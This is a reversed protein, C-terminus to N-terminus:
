DTTRLRCNSYGYRYLLRNNSGSSNLVEGKTSDAEIKTWVEFPTTGYIGMGLVRAAVGAVMPSAFSTGSTGITRYPNDADIHAVKLNDSPAFIDVAPGYNSGPDTNGLKYTSENCPEWVPDASLWRSDDISTGGVSIVRNPGIASDPNGWALRAPTTNRADINQNNASVVVTVGSAVLSTVADELISLEQSTINQYPDGYPCDDPNAPDLVRFMSINAVRSVSTDDKQQQEIWTLGAVIDDVKSGGTCPAVKVPVLTVTKAVGTYIGGLASAVATGHGGQYTANSNEDMVGCPNTGYDAEDGPAPTRDIPKGDQDTTTAIGNEVRTTHDTESRWFEQHSKLIGTDLVYAKVGFGSDCYLFQQDLDSPSAISQQDVRDLHWLVNESVTEGTSPDFNTSQATSLYMYGNEEVRAVLPYKALREAAAEPMYISFGLVGEQWVHGIEGGFQASLTKAVEPVDARSTDQLKVLYSGPVPDSVRWIQGTDGFTPGVSILSALIFVITMYRM